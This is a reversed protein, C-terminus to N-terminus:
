SWCSCLVGTEWLWTLVVQVKLEIILGVVVNWLLPIRRGDEVSLTLGWDSM